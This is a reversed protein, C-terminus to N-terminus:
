EEKKNNPDEDVVYEVEREGAPAEEEEEDNENPPSSISALVNEIDEKHEPFYKLHNKAIREYIFPEPQAKIGELTMTLAKDNDETKKIALLHGMVPVFMEFTTSKARNLEEQTQAKDPDPRKDVVNELMIELGLESAEEDVGELHAAIDMLRMKDVSDQNIGLSEIAMKISKMSKKSNKIAKKYAEKKVETAGSIKKELGIAMIAEFINKSIPDTGLINKLKIKKLSLQRGEIEKKAREILTLRIAAVEGMNNHKEVSSRVGNDVKVTKNFKTNNSSSVFYGVIISFVFVVIGIVTKPM